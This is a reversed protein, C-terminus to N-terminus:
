LSACTSGPELGLRRCSNCIPGSAKPQAVIARDVAQSLQQQWLNHPPPFPFTDAAAVAANVYGADLAMCLDTTAAISAAYAAVGHAAAHRLGLGGASTSLGAQQWAHTDLPGTCAAELCKLVEGDFALLADAIASTPTVWAAYAVKCFAACQRLLLLSTQADPLAALAQLLPKASAVRSQSHAPQWFAAPGIPAGLLAFAGAARATNLPLHHPFLSVDVAARDGGCAVLECKGPNVVLGVKPPCSCDLAASRCLLGPWVCVMSTPWACTLNRTLRHPNSLL